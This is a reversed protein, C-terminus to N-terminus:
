SASTYNALAMQWLRRMVISFFGAVVVSFLLMPLAPTKGLAVSAPLMGCLLTPIVASLLFRFPVIYGEWPVNNNDRLVYNLSYFQSSEGHWFVPLVLIFSFSSWAIFGCIFILFAFVLRYFTLPLSSWDVLFALFSLTPVSDRLTSLILIKRTRAMWFASVPLILLFDLAGTRVNKILERQSIESLAWYSYFAIQSVFVLFMMEKRDYGAFNPIRSYLIDIFLVLVLTYCVTSLLNGWNNGFYATESQFTNVLNAKMIRTYKKLKFVLEKM